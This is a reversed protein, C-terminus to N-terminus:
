VATPVVYKLEFVDAERNPPVVSAECMRTVSYVAHAVANLLASDVGLRPGQDIAGSM